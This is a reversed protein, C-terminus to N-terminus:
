LLRNRSKRRVRLIQEVTTVRDRKSGLIDRISGQMDQRSRRCCLVAINSMM